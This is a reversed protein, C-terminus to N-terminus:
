AFGLAQEITFGRQLRKRITSVDLGRIKAWESASYTEGNCTYQKTSRRAKHRNTTTTLAEEVSWGLDLRDPILTASFGLLESWETITRTQGNFTIRRNRRTNNQQVKMSVFRCNSPEYNGDTDIRDLTLDEKYGGKNIAWEKFKIYNSWEACYKIGRGGYYPYASNNRNDCRQKMGNWINHLRSYSDGHITCVDKHLCGCSQTDGNRLQKANVLVTNGCDCLCLWQVRGTKKNTGGDKIVVLRGFRQGLLNIKSPM